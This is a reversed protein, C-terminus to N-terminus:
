AARLNGLGALEALAELATSGFGAESEQLNIFDAFTVCWMNGDKFIKLKARKAFEQADKDTLGWKHALEDIRNKNAGLALAEIAITWASGRDTPDVAWIKKVFDSNDEPRFRKWILDGNTHLYYFGGEITM